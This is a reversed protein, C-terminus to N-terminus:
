WRFDKRMGVADLYEQRAREREAPDPDSKYKTYLERRTYAEVKADICEKVTAWERDQEAPDLDCYALRVLSIYMRAPIQVSKEKM